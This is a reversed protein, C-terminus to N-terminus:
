EKCSNVSTLEWASGEWHEKYPGVLASQLISATEVAGPIECIDQTM